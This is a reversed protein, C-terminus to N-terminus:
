VTGCVKELEKVQGSLEAKEAAALDRLRCLADRHRELQAELQAVHQTRVLGEGEGDGQAAAEAEARLLEIDLTLAEVQDKLQENEHRLLELQEEAMEKDLTAMEAAEHAEAIQEDATAYREEMEKLQREKDRLAEDKERRQQQWQAKYAVHQEVVVRLRDLEKLQALDGERLAELAKYKAGLEELALRLTQVEGDDVVAGAVCRVSGRQMTESENAYRCQVVYSKNGGCSRGPGPGSGPSSDGTCENVPFPRTKPCKRANSHRDVAANTQRRIATVWRSAIRRPTYVTLERAACRGASSPTTTRPPTRVPQPTAAASRVPSTPVYEEAAPVLITLQRVCGILSADFTM